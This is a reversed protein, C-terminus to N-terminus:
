AVFLNASDPSSHAIGESASMSVAWSSFAPNFVGPLTFYRNIHAFDGTDLTAIPMGYIIAMAAITLDQGPRKRESSSIWLHTLDRCCMMRGLIRAVPPTLAPYEFRTQLIDDLWTWLAAAKKPDTRNKESIGCEMEVLAAFPIAVTEQAALWAAVRPHPVRKSANSIVNTDLLFIDSAM